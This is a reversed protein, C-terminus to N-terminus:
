QIFHFLDNNGLRRSYTYWLVVPMARQFKDAYVLRNQELCCLKGTIRSKNFFDLSRFALHHFKDFALRM